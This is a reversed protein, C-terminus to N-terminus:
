GSWVRERVDKGRQSESKAALMQAKYYLTYGVFNRNMPVYKTRELHIDERGEGRERRM